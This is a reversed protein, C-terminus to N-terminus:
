FLQDLNQFHFTRRDHRDTAGSDGTAKNTGRQPSGPEIPNLFLTQQERCWKVNSSTNFIHVALCYATLYGRCLRFDKQNCTSEYDQLSDGFSQLIAPVSGL